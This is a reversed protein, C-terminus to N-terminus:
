LSLFFDIGNQLKIIMSLRMEWLYRNFGLDKRCSILPITLVFLFKPVDMFDTFIYTLYFVSYCFMPWPKYLCHVNMLHWPLVLAVELICLIIDSLFLFQLVMFCCSGVFVVALFSFKGTFLIANQPSSGWMDIFHVADGFRLSPHGCFVICPQPNLSFFSM